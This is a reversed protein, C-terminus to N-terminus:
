DVQQRALVFEMTAVSSAALKDVGCDGMWVAWWAVSAAVSWVAMTVVLIVVLCAVMSVAVKLVTSSAKGDVSLVVM